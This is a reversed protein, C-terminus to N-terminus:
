GNFEFYLIILSSLATFMLVFGNIGFHDKERRNRKRKMLLVVLSIAVCTVLLLVLYLSLTESWEERGQVGWFAQVGSVFEPRADHFVMLAALFVFWGLVNVAVMSQFFKDNERPSKRRDKVPKNDSMYFKPRRTPSFTTQM